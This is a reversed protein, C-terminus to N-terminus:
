GEEETKGDEIARIANDLEENSMGHLHLHKSGKESTGKNKYGFINVWMEVAKLRINNDPMIFQQGIKDDVKTITADMAEKLKDAIFDENLGAKLLAQKFLGDNPVYEVLKTAGKLNTITNIVKEVQEKPKKDKGRM